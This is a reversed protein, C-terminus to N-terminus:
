SRIVLAAAIIELVRSRFCVVFESREKEKILM